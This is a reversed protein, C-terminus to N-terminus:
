LPHFPQGRAGAHSPEGRDGQRNGAAFIVWGDPVKYEGLPPRPDASLGGGIRLRRRRSKM